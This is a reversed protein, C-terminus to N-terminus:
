EEQLQNRDVGYVGTVVDDMIAMIYPMGRGQRNQLLIEEGGLRSMPSRVQTILLDKRDDEASRWVGALVRGNSGNRNFSFCRVGKGGRNQTEFQDSPMRKGWGRDTIVTIEDKEGISSFWFVEDSDELAMGRVGGAIRGQVPVTELPFRISMGGASLLLLDKEGEAFRIDLLRDDKKLTIAAFKKSRVAFDSAATRKVAGRATVFILDPMKEMAAPLATFMLLAKEGEELEALVGSLLQGRDRPKFEQLRGVQVPYCSGRDTLIYLTEATTTSLLYRPSEELSEEPTPLPMRRLASPSMRKLYGGVTYCLVTEEAIVEEVPLEQPGEEPAEFATRRDDAYQDAIESMETRIVQMLKKESKLIGELRSILKLIDAYEKRLAAIELNTLRQLRMDLIAQAQAESLAFREMLGAKAEKPSKSARILAIVEDLNDLAIILGELIHARAKAQDLEYRTRRTVVQKQYNVYASIMDKLGLQVPKGEAIAVMNVGFTVQLDTYKYLYALIKRPDADKKLEVVARMGTRDSEDRIDYIGSLVAKKEETLKQIKELLAAKNVQYPIESIVILKRGSLGDEVDVKGRLILKGRGTEYARRLEENALLIGGTPFDPGPMIKMLEDLSIDPNEMQATVARIAEGLNHPPINTALGVAIGNAGNVLLNPFRAPLMDPEKLTDDFNLRFPVTDKELDRLMQMALPAMRAETYRMAAAGDGDVSGFNGHGDVLPARMSFDQAMHVLAGYVSSDGHPHYKGLCDGVIRACKRYPKDPTNGLELMTYLIRRQVPKLGDEVRPLARELIVHEAYPMMSNHMVDEMSTDLIRSPDDKVIPRQDSTKKKGAM